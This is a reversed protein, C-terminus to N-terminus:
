KLNHYKNVKELDKVIIGKNTYNVAMPKNFNLSMQKMVM